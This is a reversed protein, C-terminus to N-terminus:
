HAATGAPGVYFFAVAEQPEVADVDPARGACLFRFEVKSKNLLAHGKEGDMTIQWSETAAPREFGGPNKSVPYRESQGPPEQHM